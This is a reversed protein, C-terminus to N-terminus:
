PRYCLFKQGGFARSKSHSDQPHSYVQELAWFNQLEDGWTVNNKM